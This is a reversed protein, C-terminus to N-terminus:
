SKKAAAGAHFRALLRAAREGGDAATEPLDSRGPIRDLFEKWDAALFAAASMRLGGPWRVLAADLATFEAFHERPCYLLPTRASLCEGVLGYGPKSIVLDVSAVVDPHPLTEQTLLSLNRVPVPPAAFCLFHWDSFTELREWPLPLGWNGAYILALRRSADLGLLRVMEDRRPTSPRAVLGISQRRAFYPMPLSLDADLLLTAQAYEAELQTVVPAFRPEVAMLGAYIDAWTFNAVCVGPINLAAALTLPFSAVDTVVVRAGRRRLDDREDDRRRRNRGDVARWAEYTAAADVDVSTTQRCGVDFDDAVFEFPRAVEQRWFWEPATTKVVLPIEPPLRRLIEIERVSHGLGHGSVYAVVCM